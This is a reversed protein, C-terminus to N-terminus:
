KRQSPQRIRRYWHMNTDICTIHFYNYAWTALTIKHMYMMIFSILFASWCRRACFFKAENLIHANRIWWIFIFLASGSAILQCRFRSISVMRRPGFSSLVCRNICLISRLFSSFWSKLSAQYVRWIFSTM